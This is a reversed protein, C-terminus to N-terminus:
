TLSSRATHHRRRSALAQDAPDSCRQEAITSADVHYDHFPSATFGDVACAFTM